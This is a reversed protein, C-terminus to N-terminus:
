TVQLSTCKRKNERSKLLSSLQNFCYAYCYAVNTVYCRIDIFHKFVLPQLASKFTHQLGWVGQYLLFLALKPLVKQFILTFVFTSFYFEILCGIPITESPCDRVVWALGRVKGDLNSVNSRESCNYEMFDQLLVPQLYSPAVLSWHRTVLSKVLQYRTWGGRAAPLVTCHCNPLTPPVPVLKSGSQFSHGFHLDM